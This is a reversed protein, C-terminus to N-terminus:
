WRLRGMARVLSSGRFIFRQFIKKGECILDTKKIKIREQKIYYWVLAKSNVISKVSKLHSEIVSTSKNETRM